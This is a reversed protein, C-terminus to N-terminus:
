TSVGSGPSQVIQNIQDVLGPQTSLVILVLASGLVATTVAGLLPIWFSLKRRRMRGWALWAALIWVAVDIIAIVTGLYGPVATSPFNKLGFNNMESALTTSFSTASVIANVVYYLGFLLLAITWFRDASGPARQPRSGPQSPDQGPVGDQPPVDGQQGFPNRRTSPEFFAGGGVRDPQSQQPQAVVAAVEPEPAGWDIPQKIAARQEEPTAYEGYAPTPKETDSM